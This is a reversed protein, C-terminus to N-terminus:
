MPSSRRATEADTVTYRVTYDDLRAGDDVFDILGSLDIASDERVLRVGEDAGDKFDWAQEEGQVIKWERWTACLYNGDEFYNENIMSNDWDLAKALAEGEESLLAYAELWLQPYANANKPSAYPPDFAQAEDTITFDYERLITSTSSNNREKVWYRVGRFYYRWMEDTFVGSRVTGDADEYTYTVEPRDLVIEHAYPINAGAHDYEARFSLSDDALVLTM